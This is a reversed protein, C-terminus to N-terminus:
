DESPMLCFARELEDLYGQSVEFKSIEKPLNICNIGGSFVELTVELTQGLVQDQCINFMALCCSILAPWGIVLFLDWIRQVVAVPVTRTILCTFVTLLWPTVIVDLRIDINKLHRVLFPLKLKMLYKLQFIGLKLRTFGTKWLDGLYFPPRLLSVLTGLVESSDRFTGLLFHAVQQMGQCYGVNPILACVGILIEEVEEFHDPLGRNVDKKIDEIIEPLVEQGMATIETDYFISMYLRWSVKRPFLGSVVLRKWPSKNKLYYFILRRSRQSVNRLVLLDHFALYPLVLRWPNALTVQSHLALLHGRVCAFNDTLNQIELDKQQLTKLLKGQSQKLIFKDGRLNLVQLELQKVINEQQDTELQSIMEYVLTKVSEKEHTQIEREIYRIRLWEHYQNDRLRIIEEENEKNRVVSDCYKRLGVSSFCEKAHKLLVGVCSFWHDREALVKCGFVLTKNRTKLTIPYINESERRVQISSGASIDLIDPTFIKKTKNKNKDTVIHLINLSETFYVTSTFKHGKANFYVFTHYKCLYSIVSDLSITDSTLSNAHEEISLDSINSLSGSTSSKTYAGAISREM